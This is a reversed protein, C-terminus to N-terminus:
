YITYRVEIAHKECSYYQTVLDQEISKFTAGLFNNIDDFRYKNRRKPLAYKVNKKKDVDLINNVLYDMTERLVKLPRAEKLSGYDTRSFRKVIWEQRPKGAEREIEFIDYEYKGPLGMSMCKGQEVPEQKQIEKDVIERFREIGTVPAKKKRVEGGEKKPSLVKIVRKDKNSGNEQRRSVRDSEKLGESEDSDKQESDRIDEEEEEEEEYDDSKNRYSIARSKRNCLRGNRELTRMRDVRRGIGSDGDNEYDDDNEEGLARCDKLQGSSEQKWDGFFDLKKKSCLAVEFVSCTSQTM